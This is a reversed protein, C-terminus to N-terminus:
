IVRVVTALGIAHTTCDHMADDCVADVLRVGRPAGAHSMTNVASDITGVITWPVVTSTRADYRTMTVTIRDGPTCAVVPRTPSQTDTNNM